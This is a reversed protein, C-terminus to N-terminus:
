APDVSCTFVIRVSPDPVGASTNKETLAPDSPTSASWPRVRVRDSPTREVAASLKRVSSHTPVEPRTRVTGYLV